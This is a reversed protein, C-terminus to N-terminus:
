ELFTQWTFPMVGVTVTIDNEKGDRLVRFVLASGPKTLRVTEIADRLVKVEQSGVKLLVDDPRLGAKKAPSGDIVFNVVVKQDKDYRLAVGAFSNLGEKLDPKAAPDREFVLLRWEEKGKTSFSDPREKVGETNKNVCIKLTDKDLAYIGECVRKPSLFSLDITKPTTGADATLLAIEEGGYWVKDGKILLRPQRDTMAAVEGRLEVAVLKWTGQLEAPGGKAQASTPVDAVPLPIAVMLFCAITTLM